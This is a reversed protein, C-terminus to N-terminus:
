NEQFGLTKKNTGEPLRESVLEYSGISPDNFEIPAILNKDGEPLNLNSLSQTISAKSRNSQVIQEAEGSLISRSIEVRSVRSSDADTDVEVGIKNNHFTSQEVMVFSSEKVIIGKKCGVILNNKVLLSDSSGFKESGLEMGCDKYHYIRNNEILTNFCSNQDIADDGGNQFHNDNIRGNKCDIFEIADPVKTFVCDHIHPRQVNHLLFGEGQNNGTVRCNEIHIKGYWFRAVADNWKLKHKNKFQVHDFHNDSMYSMVMGDEITTHHIILKKCDGKARLIGWRQTSDTSRIHIPQEKTGKIIVNGFAIINVGSDLTVETGPKIILSDGKEITLDETLHIPDPSSFVLAEGKCSFLGIMLPFGILMLIRM